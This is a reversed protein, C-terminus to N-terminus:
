WSTCVCVCFFFFCVHDISTRQTNPENPHLALSLPYLRAHTFVNKPLTFCHFADFRTFNGFVVAVTIRVGCLAIESLQLPRSAPCLNDANRLTAQALQLVDRDAPTTLFSLRRGTDMVTVSSQLWTLDHWTMDFRDKSLLGGIEASQGTHISHLAEREQREWGKGDKGMREWGKGCKQREGTESIWLDICTPPREGLLETPAWSPLANAWAWALPWAKSQWRCTEDLRMLDWWPWEDAKIRM